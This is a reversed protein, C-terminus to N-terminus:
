QLQRRRGATEFNNEFRDDTATAIQANAFDRDSEAIAGATVGFHGKANGQSKKDSPQARNKAM